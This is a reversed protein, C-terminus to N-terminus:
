SSPANEAGTSNSSKNANNISEIYLEADKKWEPKLFIARDFFEHALNYDHNYYYALALLWTYYPDNPEESLVTKSYKIVRKTNGQNLLKYHADLTLSDFKKRFNFIYPAVIQIFKTSVFMVIAVMTIFAYGRIEQLTKLIDTEMLTKHSALTQATPRPPRYASADCV